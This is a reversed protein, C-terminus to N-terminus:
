RWGSVWPRLVTLSRGARAGYDDAWNDDDDSDMNDERMKKWQKSQGSPNVRLFEEDEEDVEFDKDEFMKAFRSDGLPNLAAADSGGEGEGGGGGEGEGDDAVHQGRGLAALREAAKQNVKPVRKRVSIRNARKAEVADRRRKKQWEDYEFPAAVARARAYLAQDIFFGHMYARLLPSGVLHALGVGQLERRTVFKYSEYVDTGATEELEDTISDLFSCWKPAHGLQPIYYSPCREQEAGCM